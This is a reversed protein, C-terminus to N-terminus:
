PAPTPAWSLNEISTGDMNTVHVGNGPAQNLGQVAVQTTGDFNATFAVQTGDPSFSPSYTGSPAQATLLQADSGDPHITYNERNGDLSRNTNFAITTGDPSWDPDADDHKKDQSVDALHQGKANSTWIQQVGTKRYSMFAIRTGDPSWSPQFDDGATIAKLGSGDAKVVQLGGAGAFVIKTGDPSWAPYTANRYGPTLDKRGSGDAHMVWVDGNNRFAIKKGDASANPEDDGFHKGSLDTTAESVPDVSWLQTGPSGASRYDFLIRGNGGPFAAVAPGATLLSLGAATTAVLTALTARISRPMM